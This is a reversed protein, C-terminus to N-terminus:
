QVHSPTEDKVLTFYVTTGEGPRSEVRITGNNLEIWERSLILGLGTGEEGNTGPNTFNVDIRFLKKLEDETMGIGSDKIGFEYFDIYDNSFIKITGNERTFKISNSLINQVVSNIMNRDAIVLSGPSVASDFSIGKRSANDSLLAIVFNLLDYFDFSEKNIEIRGTQIRAWQLLNELLNFINNASTHLRKAIDIIEEKSLEEINESLIQSFGLFGHFPRRLDHAILSFFKDKDANLSLLMEESRKLEKTRKNVEKELNRAYKGKDIYTVIIYGTFLVFSIVLLYFWWREYFYPLVTIVPSKVPQSWVELSNRGKVLLNYTGPHVNTYRIFRSKANINKSWIKDFNELKAKFVNNNEDYFSIIKIYFLFNNQDSNLTVPSTLNLSRGDADMSSILVIPAPISDSDYMSNYRSAGMNTGIWINGDSSVMGADRNTELGKLGEKVGYRRQYNGNWRIVGDDTGFWLNKNKDKLIFYIPDSISLGNENYKLISDGKAYFLGNIAGILLKGNYGPLISYDNNAPENDKSQIALWKKKPTQYLVGTQTTVIYSANDASIFIKRFAPFLGKLHPSIDKIGKGHKYTYLHFRSLLLINGSSDINLSIAPLSLLNNKLLHIKDDKSIYGFGKDSAAFWVNGFKDVALDQVRSNVPRLSDNQFQIHKISQNRMISFGKEHGFIMEGNNREVIATVEDSLLGQEKDYNSFRQSPLKSLGRDSAFWLINERDIFIANAGDDILGNTKKLERFESGDKNCEFISFRSAFILKNFYGAKISTRRYESSFRIPINGKILHYTGNLIYGVSNSRLVWFKKGEDTYEIDMNILTDHMNGPATEFIKVPTNKQLVYLNHSTLIYLSDHSYNLASISSFDFKGASTLNKWKGDSFLFLGTSKTGVAFEPNNGGKLMEFSTVFINKNANGPATPLAKWKGNKLSLISISDLRSSVWVTNNSDISLYNYNDPNFNNPFLFKNWEYTDFSAVGNRTVFWMIGNKDQAIDYVTSSPLGNEETYYASYFSQASLNATQFFFFALVFFIIKFYINKITM